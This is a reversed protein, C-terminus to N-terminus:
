ADSDTEGDNFNWSEILQKMFEDVRRAHELISQTREEMVGEFKDQRRETERVRVELKNMSEQHILENKAIEARNERSNDIAIAGAAVAAVCAGIICISIWATKVNLKIEESKAM